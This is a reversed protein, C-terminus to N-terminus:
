LFYPPPTAMRVLDAPATTREELSPGGREQEPSPSSTNWKERGLLSAQIVIGSLPTSPGEYDDEREDEEGPHHYLTGQHHGIEWESHSCLLSSSHNSSRSVTRWIGAGGSGAPHSKPGYVSDQQAETEEETFQLYNSCTSPWLTAVPVFFTFIPLAGLLLSVLEFLPKVKGPFRKQM